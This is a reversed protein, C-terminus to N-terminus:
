PCSRRSCRTRWRPQMTPWWLRSAAQLMDCCTPSTGDPMVNKLCERCAAFAPLRLRASSARAPWTVATVRPSACSASTRVSAPLERGRRRAWAGAYFGSCSHSPAFPCSCSHVLMLKCGPVLCATCSAHQQEATSPMDGFYAEGGAPEDRSTITSKEADHHPGHRAMSGTKCTRGVCSAFGM